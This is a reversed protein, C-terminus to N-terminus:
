NKKKKEPVSGAEKLGKRNCESCFEGIKGNYSPSGGLTNEEEAKRSPSKSCTCERMKSTPNLGNGCLTYRDVTKEGAEGRSM